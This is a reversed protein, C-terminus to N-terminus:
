SAARGMASPRGSELGSEPDHARDCAQEAVLEDKFWLRVAAGSVCVRGSTETALEDAIQQWSKPRLRMRRSRVFERVGGRGKLLENALDQRPTKKM